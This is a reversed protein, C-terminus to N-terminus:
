LLEMKLIIKIKVKRKQPEQGFPDILKAIPDFDEFFKSVKSFSRFRRFVEVKSFSRGEFFKSRRFVEVKSIEITNRM